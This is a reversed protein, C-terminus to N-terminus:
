DEAIPIDFGYKVATAEFLPLGYSGYDDDSWNELGEELIWNWMRVVEFMLYASIGRKNNAKEFGFAVDEKLQKLINEKNLKIHKHEVDAPINFGFDVLQNKPIFQTLRVLDRGDFTNSKYLNKVRELTKM